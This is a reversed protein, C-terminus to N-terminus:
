FNKKYNEEHDSSPKLSKCIEFLHYFLQAIIKQFNGRNKASKGWKEYMSLIVCKTQFAPAPPTYYYYLVQFDVLKILLSYDRFAKGACQVDLENMLPLKRIFKSIFFFTSLLVISPGTVGCPLLRGSHSASPPGSGSHM